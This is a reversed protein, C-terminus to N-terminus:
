EQSHSIEPGNSSIILMAAGIVILVALAVMVYPAFPIVVAFMQAMILIGGAIICTSILAVGPLTLDHTM